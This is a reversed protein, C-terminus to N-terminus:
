MGARVRKIREKRIAEFLDPKTLKAPFKHKTEFVRNYLVVVNAKSLGQAEPRSIVEEFREDSQFAGRLKAALEDITKAVEAEDKRARPPRPPSSSGARRTSKKKLGDCAALEQLFSSLQASIPTAGLREAERLLKEIEKAAQAPKM